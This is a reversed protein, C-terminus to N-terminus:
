RVLAMKLVRAKLIAHGEHLEFRIVYTGSAWGNAFFDIRGTKAPDAATAILEGALNYVRCVAVMGMMQTADYFVAVPKGPLVPNPAVLASATPDVSDASKLVVVSRTSIISEQGADRSFLQVVYSGSNVPIGNDNLGDWGQVQWGGSSLVEIKYSQAAKGTSPDIELAFGEGDTRLQSAGSVTSALHITRVVEGASNYIRLYQQITAPIVQVERSLSIVQGFPDQVETKIVYSGGGLSGGNDNTGDWLVTNGGNALAGPFQIALQTQGGLIVDASFGMQGPQYQAPGSYIIRVREGASNYAAILVTHPMPVPTNSRTPSVTITSSVTLSPTSSATSSQTATMSQTLTATATSSQTPSDALTQTRTATATVTITSSLTQTASATSTASTTATPSSTLTSTDTASPGPSETSTSSPTATSSATQTSTLTQTSTPTASASATSTASETSSPTVTSSVTVTSTNTATDNNTITMTPTATRTPTITSSATQSPTVTRTSTSTSSPSVSPTATRTSTNTSTDLTTITVTVSLTVTPTATASPTATSTKTVTSTPTRTSTNTSTDLTTITQTVSLTVSPTASSTATATRTSTNTSTLTGTPTSTVSPTVTRTQTSTFSPTRTSTNTSTDLTTITVTESLTVSPTATSTRTSSPSPSRTPTASATYTPTSTPTVTVTITTTSTASSTSTLTRTPTATATSTATVTSTSTRTTTASFTPTPTSTNTATNLSTQTSTPSPTQSPTQTRTQTVTATATPTPTATVTVSNTSTPTATRTLTDTPSPTATPTRTITVSQTDTPTATATMSQTPTATRTPTPTATVSTTFTSSSSPSPTVTRTFSVSPTPSPTITVSASPTSTATRTSTSTETRTSTETPTPTRTPTHTPTRTDTPTVTRTYTNTTCATVPKLEISVGRWNTPGGPDTYDNTYTGPAATNTYSGYVDNCCQSTNAAFLQTGHAGTFTQPGSPYAFFDHIISFGTTTTITDTFTALTGSNTSIAGFPSATDINKYVTAVVNWSCGSAGPVALTATGAPPNVMYFSYINGGGPIALTANSPLPTLATGNYTVGSGITFGNAEVQVILVQGPGAPVAYPWSTPAGSGACGNALPQGVGNVVLSQVFAPTAGCVTPYPTPSVTPTDTLTFTNTPGPPTFTPIPTGCAVTAMPVPTFANATPTPGCVPLTSSTQRVQQYNVAGGTSGTFGYYVNANGGFATAVFNAPLNWTARGFGDFSYSLQRSSADWTFCVAHWAGDSIIPLSQSANSRCSGTAWGTGNYGPCSANGPGEFATGGNRNLNFTHFAPDYYPAAPNSYTDLALALSNGIGSYGHEGSNAGLSGTGNSQLTFTMGDAGCNNDGFNMDVCISFDTTSVDFPCPNWMSGAQSTVEQTLVVDGTPGYQASGNLVWPVPMVSYVPGAMVLGAVAFASYLFLTRVRKGM